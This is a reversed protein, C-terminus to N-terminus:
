GSVDVRGFPRATIVGWVGSRVYVDARAIAAASEADPARVLMVSSTMADAYAGGEILTGARKLEAIRTLHEARVSPRREAAEPTYQAEVLYVTEITVGPPFEVQSM